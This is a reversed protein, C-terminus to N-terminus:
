ETLNTVLHSLMTRQVVLPVSTSTHTLLSSTSPNHPIIPRQLQLPSLDDHRKQRSRSPRSRKPPLQTFNDSGPDYPIFSLGYTSCNRATFAEKTRPLAVQLPGMSNCITERKRRQISIFLALLITTLLVIGALTGCVIEIIRRTWWTHDLSREEVNNVTVMVGEISLISANTLLTLTLIHRDPQLPPSSYLIHPRESDFTILGNDEGDLAYSLFPLDKDVMGISGIVSVSSGNFNFTASAYQDSTLHVAPLVVWHGSYAFSPSSHDIVLSSPM